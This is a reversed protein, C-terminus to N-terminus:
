DIERMYYMSTRDRVKPHGILNIYNALQEFDTSVHFLRGNILIEIIMIGTSFIDTKEDYVRSSCIIEPPKYSRTFGQVTYPTGCEEFEHKEYQNERIKIFM